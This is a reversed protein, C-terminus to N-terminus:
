LWESIEVDRVFPRNSWQYNLYTFESITGIYVKLKVTKM